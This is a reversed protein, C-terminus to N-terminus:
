SQREAYRSILTSSGLDAHWHHGTERNVVQHKERAAEGASIFPDSRTERKPDRKASYSEARNFVGTTESIAPESRMEETKWPKRKGFGSPQTARLRLV